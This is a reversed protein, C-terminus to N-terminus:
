VGNVEEKELISYCDADIYMHVDEAQRLISAPCAETIPGALADRIAKAKLASPVICFKCDAAMLAPITLTVAEKPVDSIRAFCKDNVQQMRCTEDLQVRKILCPDDFDAVGPDNFAIHGNEGVGMCVIDMHTRSLLESYNGIQEDPTNGSDLIFFKEKFSVASFFGELFHKFTRPDDKGLGIYEDMHFANIRNWDIDDSDFLASLFESQSPAAAFVINLEDRCRLLERIRSRAEKAAEYGMLARTEFIKVTLKDFRKQIM